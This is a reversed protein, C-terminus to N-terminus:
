SLHQKVITSAKSFDMRGAFKQKLAGMVKGMDRVSSAGTAEVAASVADKIEDDGMQQPMFGLIIDVEEREQQALAERGGKEYLEISERRQKIMSNLMKLIEDDSLGADNGAGRAAIDRDKLAALILRITAVERTKKARLNEKLADSFRTRLM